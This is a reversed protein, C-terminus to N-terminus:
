YILCCFLQSFMFVSLAPFQPQIYHTRAIIISWEAPYRLFPACPVGFTVFFIILHELLYTFFFLHDFVSVIKTYSFATKNQGDHILYNGM